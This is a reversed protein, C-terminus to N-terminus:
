KLTLFDGHPKFSATKNGCVHRSITSLDEILFVDHQTESVFTPVESDDGRGGLTFTLNSVYLTFM